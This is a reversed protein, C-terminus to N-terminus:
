SPLSYEHQKATGILELAKPWWLDRRRVGHSLGAWASTDNGIFNSVGTANLADIAITAQM